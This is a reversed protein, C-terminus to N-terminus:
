CPTSRRSEDAAAVKELVVGHSVQGVANVVERIRPLGDEVDHVAGNGANVREPAGVREAVIGPAVAEGGGPGVAGGAGIVVVTHVAEHGGHVREVLRVAEGVIRLALEGRERVGLAVHGGPGEVGETALGVLSVRVAVAVGVAVVGGAVEGVVDVLPTWSM